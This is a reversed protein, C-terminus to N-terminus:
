PTTKEAYNRTTEQQHAEAAEVLITFARALISLEEASLPTL